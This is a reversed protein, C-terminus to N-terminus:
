FKCTAPELCTFPSPEAYMVHIFQSVGQRLIRWTSPTESSEFRAFEPYSSTHLATLCLPSLGAAPMKQSSKLHELTGVADRQPQHWIQLPATRTQPPLQLGPPHRQAGLIPLGPPMSMGWRPTLGTDPNPRSQHSTAPWGLQRPVWRFPSCPYHTSSSFKFLRLIFCSSGQSM